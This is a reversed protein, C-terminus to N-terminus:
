GPPGGVDRDPDPVPPLGREKRLANVLELPKDDRPQLARDLAARLQEPTADGQRYIRVPRPSRGSGWRRVAM